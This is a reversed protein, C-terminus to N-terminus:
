MSKSANELYLEDLIKDCYAQYSAAGKWGRRHNRLGVTTWGESRLRAIRQQKSELTLGPRSSGNTDSPPDTTDQDQAPSFSWYSASRSFTKSTRHARQLQAVEDILSRIASISSSIHTRLFQCDLSLDLVATDSEGATKDVTLPSPLLLTRSGERPLKFSPSEALQFRGARGDQSGHPDDEIDWRMSDDIIQTIDGVQGGVPGGVSEPGDLPSCGPTNSDCFSLEAPSLLGSDDGATSDSDDSALGSPLTM